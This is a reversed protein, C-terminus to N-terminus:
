AEKLEIKAQNLIDRQAAPLNRGAWNIYFNLISMASQKLSGKRCSDIKASDMFSKAIESPNEWTFDHKDLDLTNDLTNNWRETM